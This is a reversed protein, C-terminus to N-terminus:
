CVPSRVPRRASLRWGTSMGDRQEVARWRVAARREGATCPRPTTLTGIGISRRVNRVRVPDSSAETTAISARADQSYHEATLVTLLDARAQDPDM